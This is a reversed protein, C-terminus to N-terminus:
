QCFELPRASPAQFAVAESALGAGSNKHSITWEMLPYAITKPQYNSWLGFVKKLQDGYQGIKEKILYALQLPRLVRKCVAGGMKVTFSCWDGEDAAQIIEKTEETPASFLNEYYRAAKRSERYVTVPPGGIQQFQRINWISAWARVRLASIASCDEAEDDM